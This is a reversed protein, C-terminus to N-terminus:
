VLCLGVNKFFCLALNKERFGTTMKELKFFGMKNIMDENEETVVKEMEM